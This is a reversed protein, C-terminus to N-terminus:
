LYNPETAQRFFYIAVDKRQTKIKWLLEYIFKIINIVNM